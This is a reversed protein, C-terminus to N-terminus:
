QDAEVKFLRAFTRSPRQRTKPPRPPLQAAAWREAHARSAALMRARLAATASARPTPIDHRM